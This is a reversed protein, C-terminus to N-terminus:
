ELKARIEEVKQKAEKKGKELAKEYLQLAEEYTERKKNPALKTRKAAEELAAAQAFYSDAETIKMIRVLENIRIQLLKLESKKSDLRMEIENLEATKIKVETNLEANEEMIGIEENRIRLEDKLADIIVIYSESMFTNEAMSAELERVKEETSKIYDKLEMMRQSYDLGEKKTESSILHISHRTADISDLLVNVTKLSEIMKTSASLQMRLSDNENKLQVSDSSCSTLSAVAFLTGVAFCIPKARLSNEFVSM